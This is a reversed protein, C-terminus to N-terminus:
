QATELAPQKDKLKIEFDKMKKLEGQIDVEGSLAIQAQSREAM